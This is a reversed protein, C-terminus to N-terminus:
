RHSQIIFQSKIISDNYGADRINPNDKRHGIARQKNTLIYPFGAKLLFKVCEIISLTTIKLGEYTQRSLFKKCKDNKTFNGPRNEINNKWNKFYGLFDNKLWEFRDDDQNTYPTLFPKGKFTCEKTNHVNCCDFFKDIRLIFEATEAAHSPGFKKMINAMIGSLVQAALRVNMVSYPTLHLHDETLQPFYRLNDEFDKNYMQVVHSWLIGWGM